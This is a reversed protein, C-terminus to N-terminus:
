SGCPQEQLIQGAQNPAYNSQGSVLGWETGTSWPAWAWGCYGMGYQNLVTLTNSYWAYEDSMNSAWLDCGIEGVWVPHQSALSLLGTINLAWLMDSYSYKQVYNNLSDYFGSSYLHTSYVINNITDNLPNSSVWDMSSATTSATSYNQFDLYTDSGWQVVIISTSGTGRIANICQQTVSFWSAEAEADGNPENWLEFM